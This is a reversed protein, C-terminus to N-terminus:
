LLAMLESGEPSPQPHKTPFMAGRLLLWMRPPSIAVTTYLVDNSLSICHICVRYYYGSASGLDAQVSSCSVIADMMNIEFLQRYESLWLSCAQSFRITQDWNLMPKDEACGSMIFYLSHLSSDKPGQPTSMLSPFHLVVWEYHSTSCMSYFHNGSSHMIFAM